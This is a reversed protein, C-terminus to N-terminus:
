IFHIRLRDFRAFQEIRGVFLYDHMEWMEMWIEWNEVFLSM